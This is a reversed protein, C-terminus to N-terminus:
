DFALHTQDDILWGEVQLRGAHERAHHGCFLIEMEGKIAKMLARSDCRICRDKPLLPTSTSVIFEPNILEAIMSKTM